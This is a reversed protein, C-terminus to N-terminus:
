NEDDDETTSSNKTKNLDKNTIFIVIKEEHSSEHINGIEIM